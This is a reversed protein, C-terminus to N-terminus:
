ELRDIWEQLDDIRNRFSEYVLENIDDFGASLDAYTRFYVLGNIFTARVIKLFDQLEKKNALTVNDEKIGTILCMKEEDNLQLINCLESLRKNNRPLIGETEYSIYARRTIGLAKAVDAQTMHLEKRKKRIIEAFTM